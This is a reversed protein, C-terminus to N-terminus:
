ASVGQAQQGHGGDHVNVHADGVEDHEHHGDGDHDDHAHSVMAQATFILTLIAFVAAQAGGVIIELFLIAVPIFTGFLFLFVAFLISGAFLAGFLRFSLSIIKGLESVIEFIGAVFDVIGLPRTGANGLANINVFKQLYNPGLTSLGFYQILCFAFIALGLTLNLDTAAGRIFPAVTFLQNRFTTAEKGLLENRVTITQGAKLPTDATLAPTESHGEENEVPAVVAGANLELLEAGTFEVPKWSEYGGFTEAVYASSIPSNPTTVQPLDDNLREEVQTTYQAAISNLTDGAVTTHTVAADYFPDLAKVDHANAGHNTVFSECQEWSEFDATTGVDLANSVRLTFVPRGLVNGEHIPLGSFAVPEYAACHLIGVSEVGPILKSWNAALLFLFLSAVIPFLINKVKHSHGAQQKTLGWLGDVVLEAAAQGRGPVKKTWGNSWRSASLAFIIVLIDALLAGGLLTNVFFDDLAPSPWNELYKEPPVTIVPLTVGTGLVKPLFWIQFLAIGVIVAIVILLSRCGRQNTTM